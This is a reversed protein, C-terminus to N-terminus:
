CDRKDGSYHLIEYAKASQIILFDLQAFSYFIIAQIIRKAIKIEM